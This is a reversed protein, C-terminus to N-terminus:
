ANNYVEWIMWGALIRRLSWGATRIWNGLVLSSHAQADFGGLLKEHMPVQLLATSAWVVGLLVAGALGMWSPLNNEPRFVLLLATAAELLMPPGVVFSTLSMHSQQYALFAPGGVGKFLPYHVVQVFWILGTMFVTSAFHLLLLPM